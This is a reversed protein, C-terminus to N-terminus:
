AYREHDVIDGKSVHIKGVIGDRTARVDARRAQISVEDEAVFGRVEESYEYEILADGQSQTANESTRLAIITAPLHARPIYYKIDSDDNDAM